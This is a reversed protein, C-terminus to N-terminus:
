RNIVRLSQRPHLLVGWYSPEWGGMMDNLDEQSSSGAAGWAMEESAPRGGSEHHRTGSPGFSTDNSYVNYIGSNPGSAHRSSETSDKHAHAVSYATTAAATSGFLLTKLRTIPNSSSSAPSAQQADFPGHAYTSSHASSAGNSQILMANSHAKHMALQKRYLLACFAAYVAVIFLLGAFSGAIAAGINTGGSRTSSNSASSVGTSTIQGGDPGTLTYTIPKGTALPGASPLNVPATVTAGGTSSGGIIDYVEKPVAYGYSGHLGSKADAGRQSLQQSFPNSADSGGGSLTNFSQSWSLSSLNFIYIGPTECTIDKSIYGGVVVMQSDWIDCTHGARPYPTSQSTTNVQIWTFSPITLIWMDSYQVQSGYPILNQGGFMYVQYSSGDAAAAVVACPNVRIEPTPGATSQRYWTSNAIDYVDVVNMQTFTENTGGALSILMGSESFGPIYTLIGDARETFGNTDQIGANTINRWAGDTGALQNNSLSTVGPNSYGPFTFEVFSKLYLRATQVSWTPSTYADM